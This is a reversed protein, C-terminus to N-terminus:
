WTMISIKVRSLVGNEDLVYDDYEKAYINSSADEDATRYDLLYIDKNYDYIIIRFDNNEPFNWNKKVDTTNSTITNLRELDIGKLVEQIGLKYNYDHKFSFSNTYPGNFFGIKYRLDESLDSYIILDISNDKTCFSFLVQKSFTFVMGNDNDYLVLFDSTRNYCRYNEYDILGYRESDFFYNDYNYINFNLELEFLNMFQDFTHFYNYIGPISSFFIQSYNFSNTSFFYRAYMDKKTFNLLEDTKLGNIYMNFSNLRDVGLYRINDVLGNNLNAIFSHQKIEVQSYSSVIDYFAKGLDYAFPSKLLWYSNKNSNINALFIMKGFLTDFSNDDVFSYNFSPDLSSDGTIPIYENDIVEETANVFVPIKYVNWYYGDLHTEIINVLSETRIDSRLKPAAFMFFWAIFLMFIGLSIAWDVQSLGKKSGRKKDFNM